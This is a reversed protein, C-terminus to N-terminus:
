KDLKKSKKKTTAQFNMNQCIGLLGLIIADSIDEDPVEIDISKLYDAVALKSKGKGFKRTDIHFKSRASQALILQFPIKKDICIGIALTGMKALHLSGARNWGLYVEEVVALHEDTFLKKFENHMQTLMQIQNEYNFEIFIWDINVYTKNTEIFAVGTRKATDLGITKFNKKITYGLKSELDKIKLKM